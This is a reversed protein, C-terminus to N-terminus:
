GTAKGRSFEEIARDSLDHNGMKLIVDLPLTLHDAGALIADAAEEPIKISAALIESGTGACEVVAALERVLKLGDGLLRTARNVYPILYRAGAECGALAQHAAYVATLACPMEPSLRALLSLNGTTAPIKLVIRDPALAHFRRAEEERDEPSDATLQYFVPGRSAELIAAVVRFGQKGTRAVLTPNTTVGEVWGLGVAQRVEAIDASDILISM